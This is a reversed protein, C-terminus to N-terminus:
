FSGIAPMAPGETVQRHIPELFLNPRRRIQRSKTVPRHRREERFPHTRQRDDVDTPCRALDLLGAAPQSGVGDM